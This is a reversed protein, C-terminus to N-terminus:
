MPLTSERKSELASNLHSLQALLRQQREATLNAITPRRELEWAAQFLVALALLSLDGLVLRAISAIRALVTPDSNRLFITVCQAAMYTSFTFSYLLLNKRVSAPYWVLFAAIAVLFILLMLCIASEILLAARVMQFQEGPADLEGVHILVAVLAGAALVALMGKRSVVSLGRYGEFSHAYIELAVCVHAILIIPLTAFYTRAYLDSNVNLALLPISSLLQLAVWVALM